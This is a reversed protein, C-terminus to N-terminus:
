KRMALIKANHAFLWDSLKKHLKPYMGKLNVNESTGLVICLMVHEGFTPLTKDRKIDAFLKDVGRLEEKLNYGKVSKGKKITNM